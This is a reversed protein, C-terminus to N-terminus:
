PQGADEMECYLWTKAYTWYRDATARSIGLVEAAEVVSMGAFYRLKVLDAKKPDEVALRALADDLALLRDSPSDQM